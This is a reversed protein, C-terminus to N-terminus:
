QLTAGVIFGIFGAMVIFVLPSFFKEIAFKVKAFFGVGEDAGMGGGGWVLLYLIILFVTVAIFIGLGNTANRVFAQAKTINDTTTKTETKLAGREADLESYLTGNATDIRIKGNEDVQTDPDFPVCKYADVSEVKTTDLNPAPQTQTVEGLNYGYKVVRRFIPEDFTGPTAPFIVGTLPEYKGFQGTIGNVNNFSEKVITMVSDSIRIGYVQVIVMIDKAQSCVTYHAHLSNSLITTTRAAPFFDGLSTAKTLDFSGLPGMAKFFNPDTTTVTPNRLIPVAIIIQAPSPTTGTDTPAEFTFVIDEQNNARESQPLIWSQHTPQAMQLKRLTYTMNNYRLTNLGDFPQFVGLLSNQFIPPTRQQAWQFVIQTQLYQAPDQTYFAANLSAVQLTNPFTQISTTPCVGAMETM